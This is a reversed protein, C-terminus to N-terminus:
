CTAYTPTYKYRAKALLTSAIIESHQRVNGSNVAVKDSM